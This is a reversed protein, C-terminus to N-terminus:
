HEGCVRPHEGGVHSKPPENHTSGSYAPTNRHCLGFQEVVGHAGRMRPSSGGLLIVGRADVQTSGAYTPIIWGGVKTRDTSVLTGRMRPSSGKSLVPPSFSLTSGAYAPIIGHRSYSTIVPPAGRMRPSSEDGCHAAYPTCPIGQM